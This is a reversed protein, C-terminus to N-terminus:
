PIRGVPVDDEFTIGRTFTFTEVVRAVPKGPGHLAPLKQKHVAAGNSARYAAIHKCTKPQEKNFVWSTCACALHGSPLQALQYHLGLESDSEVYTVHVAGKRRVMKTTV